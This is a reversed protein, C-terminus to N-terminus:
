CMPSNFVYSYIADEEYDYIEFNHVDNLFESANEIIRIKGQSDFGYRFFSDKMEFKEKAM